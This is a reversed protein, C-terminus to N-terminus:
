LAGRPAPPALGLSAIVELANDEATTANEVALEIDEAAHATLAEQWAGQALDLGRAATELAASDVGDPLRPLAALGDVRAQLSALLGPLGASLRSWDSALTRLFDERGARALAVLAQADDMAQPAGALVAAYDGREFAERLGAARTLAAAAQEPAYPEAAEAAASIAAEAAELAQKATEQQGACGALLLAALMLRLGTSWRGSERESCHRLQM